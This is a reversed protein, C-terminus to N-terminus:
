ACFLVITADRPLRLREATEAADDPPIRVSGAARRPDQEYARDKRVDGVIVTEGRVQMARMEEITIREGVTEPTARAILPASAAPVPQETTEIVHKRDHARARRLYYAIGSGHLVLSLVVVLATIAFLRESGPYGAFVPLLILLLASLGRPGMWSVLLRSRADLSSARLVVSLVGTRVLLAAVAFIAVGPDVVSFGTWMLSTGFAVFSLLLFMEATAEGYDLFCDCLEVDLMAIVLGAAFAALFGSGGVSEAAAFATLAVGLAYLSEYDRRVGIRSRVRELVSIALWGVAAGLGPGLLFLGVLHRGISESEGGVGRGTLLMAVVVVPLLVVDNMGSELRLALRASAPLARHKLLARLLVPDTSALAAGIIAASAPDLDLLWWALVALIIAPLLTAPGLVLLALRKQRRVEGIDVSIADMFLVLVLGLTAIVRLTPSALTFDMLGLGVPGLVVGIALFVAVQPFGSRESVGSLLSAAIIVIGVM